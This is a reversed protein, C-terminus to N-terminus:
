LLEVFYLSVFLPYNEDARMKADSIVNAGQPSKKKKRQHHHRTIQMNIRVKRTTYIGLAVELEARLYWNNKERKQERAGPEEITRGNAHTLRTSGRGSFKIYDCEGKM